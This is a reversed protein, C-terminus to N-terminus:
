AHVGEEAPAPLVPREEDLFLDYVPLPHLAQAIDAAFQRAPFSHGSPATPNVTVALLQVQHLVQLNGGQHRWRQWVEPSAFVHTGDPVVLTPLASSSQQAPSDPQSGPLRRQSQLLAHLFSDTLAGPILLHSADGLEQLIVTAEGLLSTQTSPRLGAVPHWYAIKGAAFATEAAHRLAAPVAPATLLAVTHLTKELVRRPNNSLSAGTALITADTVRPAATGVRDLAGDVLVLQSGAQQLASIIAQMQQLTDPGAIEVAGAERVRAIVVGGLATSFDTVQLLELSAEAQRLAGEATAIVTGAPAYIRPKPLRTLRDVREGDYGLSTLGLPIHAAAAEAILRRLTVTKGVNKALGIVAVSRAQARRVHTLLM